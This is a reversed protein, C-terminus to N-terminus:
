NAGNWATFPVPKTFPAGVDIVIDTHNGLKIARPDGAYIAGDVWVRMAEGRKLRATAAQTRSLPQGWIDMFAGLTFSQDIPAEIHIIGDPTHTHLWYLCNRGEPRGVDNPIAVAKGHDLITLHQHIHLRQGEMADCAVGGIPQGSGVLLQAHAASLPLALLVAAATSVLCSRM